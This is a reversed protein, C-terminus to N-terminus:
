NSAISMSWPNKATFQASPESPKGPGAKNEATVRFDYKEDEYLDTVELRTDTPKTKLQIWRTGTRREVIYGTIPSGGDSGPATWTLVCSTARIDSVSPVGPVGPVGSSM